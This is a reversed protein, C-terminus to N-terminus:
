LAPLDFWVSAGRDANSSASMVGGHANVITRNISLGMGLGQQKTTFFPEFMRGAVEPSLGVGTDVVVTRVQPGAAQTRVTVNRPSEKADATADLANVVLNLLVQQLQVRDGVVKPLGEALEVRLTIRRLVADSHTISWVERVIENLDLPKFELDRRKLLGHSRSVVEGARKGDEVIDSLASRVEAFDPVAAALLRLAAQANNVIACLPQNIEHAISAALHGLTSVRTVHWLESQMRRLNHDANRRALANALVEGILQLRPVWEIPFERAERFTAIGLACRPMGSVNIPIGLHSKLGTKACYEREGVAETPLLEVKTFRVMRGNALEGVYWKLGRDLRGRPLPGAGSAAYSALIEMDGEPTIRGLSSRDVRLFEVLRRLGEEVQADVKDSAVNVFQASFDAIFQEFSVRQELSSPDSRAPIERDIREM